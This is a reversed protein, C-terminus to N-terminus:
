VDRKFGTALTAGIHYILHGEEDDCISKARDKKNREKQKGRVILTHSLNSDISQLVIHPIVVVCSYTFLFNSYM